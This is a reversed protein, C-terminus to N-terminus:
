SPLTGGHGFLIAHVRAATVTCPSCGFQEQLFRYTYDMAVIPLFTRWEGAFYTMRGFSEAAVIRNKFASVCKKCGVIETILQPLDTEEFVVVKL